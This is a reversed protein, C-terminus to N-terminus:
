CGNAAKEGAQAGTREANSNTTAFGITAVWHTFRHCKSRRYAEFAVPTWRLHPCGSSSM